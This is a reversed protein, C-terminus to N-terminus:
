SGHIGLYLEVAGQPRVARVGYLFDISVVDQKKHVDYDYVVRLGMGKYQEVAAGVTDGNAEQKGLPIPLSRTALAIADRHFAIGDAEHRGHGGEADGLVQSEYTDFGFKRGISAEVLGDTDGRQNAVVALSGGLVAGAGEPSLVAFRNRTPLKSRGLKTRAPVLVKLPENSDPSPVTGGGTQKAPYDGGPDAVQQSATYLADALDADVGQSIAEMAPTVLRTAFDDIDLLLEEATVDFSVDALQDLTVPFKDETANQIEIGTTRDFKKATFVVPVRVNITDGQKGTFDPDYDRYVLGALVTDNYLTALARQAIVTPTIFVNAM